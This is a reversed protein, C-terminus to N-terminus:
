SVSALVRVLRALNPLRENIPYICEERKPNSYINTRIKLIKSSTKFLNSLEEAAKFGIELVKSYLEYSDFYKFEDFSKPVSKM